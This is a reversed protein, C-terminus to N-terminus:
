YYRKGSHDCIVLLSGPPNLHILPLSLKPRPFIVTLFASLSYYYHLVFGCFHTGLSCLLLGLCVEFAGQFPDLLFAPSDQLPWCLCWIQNVDMVYPSLQCCCNISPV